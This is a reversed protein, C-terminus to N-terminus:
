KVLIKTKRSTILGGTLGIILIDVLNYSSKIQYNGDDPVRPHPQNLPILGGILYFNRDSSYVREVSQPGVPGYGITYRQVTCSSLTITSLLSAILISKKIQYSSGM